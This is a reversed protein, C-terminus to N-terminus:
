VCVNEIDNHWFIHESSLVSVHTSRKVLTGLEKLSATQPYCRNFIDAGADRKEDCRLRSTWPIRIFYPIKANKVVVQFPYKRAKREREVRQSLPIPSRINKNLPHLEYSFTM